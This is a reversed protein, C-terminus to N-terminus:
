ALLNQLTFLSLRDQQANGLGKVCSVGTIPNTCLLFINQRECKGPPHCAKVLIM